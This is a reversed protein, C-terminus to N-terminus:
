APLADLLEDTTLTATGFKGVVVASAYNAIEAADSAAIGSALALTFLAIATDGAGSVDYVEKARSPVHIIEDSGRECLTMGLESLTILLLRTDWNAFLKEAVERVLPDASPDNGIERDPLGAATFAEHRNPKIATAGKWSLPNSPNPDVTVPIDANAACDAMRDVFEQTVFGKGYDQVIIADIESLRGEVFRIAQDLSDADLPSRVERDIRVVQQSRAVVRTKVTTPKASTRIVGESNLNEEALIRMLQDGDSDKGALGMVSVRDAFPSLNRAVNAAGGPFFHDDTVEVVPVPAEPSIRCVSGGIFRDLMIDGVVLIHKRRFSDLHQALTARDM